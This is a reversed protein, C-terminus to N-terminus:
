ANLMVFLYYKIFKIKIQDPGQRPLGDKWVDLLVTQKCKRFKLKQWPTPM